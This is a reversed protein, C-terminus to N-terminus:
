LTYSTWYNNTKSWKQWKTDRKQPGSAYKYMFLSCFIQVSMYHWQWLLCNVLLGLVDADAAPHRLSSSQCQNISHNIPQNTSQIIPQNHNISLYISLYISPSVSQSVSSTLRRIPRSNATFTEQVPVQMIMCGFKISSVQVSVKAM